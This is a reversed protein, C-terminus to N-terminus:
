QHDVADVSAIEWGASGAAFTAWRQQPGNFRSSEPLLDRLTDREALERAWTAVSDFVITHRVSAFATSYTVGANPTWGPLPGRTVVSDVSVLRRRAFCLRMLRDRGGAVAEADRRGRDTLIYRVMREVGAPHVGSANPVRWDPDGPLVEGRTVLGAARLLEYPRAYQAEQARTRTSTDGPTLIITAPFRREDICAREAAYRAKLLAAFTEPTASRAVARAADARAASEENVCAALALLALATM